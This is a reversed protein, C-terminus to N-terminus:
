RTVREFVRITEPRIVVTATDTAFRVEGPERATGDSRPSFLADLADPDVYEYLPPDVALPTTGEFKALANVVAVSTSEDNPRSYEVWGRNAGSDRGYDTTNVEEM